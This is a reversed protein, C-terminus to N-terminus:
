PRKLIKLTSANTRMFLFFNGKSLAIPVWHEIRSGCQRAVANANAAATRRPAEADSALASASPRTV